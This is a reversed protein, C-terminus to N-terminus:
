FLELGPLVFLVFGISALLVLVAFGLVIVNKLGEGRKRQPRAV